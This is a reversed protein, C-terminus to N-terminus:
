NMRFPAIMSFDPIVVNFLKGDFIREMQYTGAMKGLSTNLNCGSTYEYSQGPELTPQQGVVGEGEVERVLGNADHIYWHRRLLKVTFDSENQIKIHYSFVFNGQFPNSYEAQFHTLVSVKVGNTIASVM